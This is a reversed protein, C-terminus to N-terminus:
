KGTLKNLVLTISKTLELIVELGGSSINKYVAQESIRLEKAISKIQAGETLLSMIRIRNRNWSEFNYSILYLANRILGLTDTEDSFAVSIFHSQSKLNVLGERAQYFAPGDMGIAQARNISTTIDGIGYSFRIREPYGAYLIRWIHRFIDDASTYVCQFEDGLTITMPSLISHSERNIRQLLIKLKKQITEREKIERSSVIDAILVIRKM